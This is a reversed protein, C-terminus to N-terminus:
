DNPSNNLIYDKVKRKSCEQLCPISSCFCSIGDIYFIARNREEERIQSERSQLLNRIFDKILEANDDSNVRVQVCPFEKDFEKEWEEDEAEQDPQCHQCTLRDVRGNKIHCDCRCGEIHIIPIEPSVLEMADGAMWYIPGDIQENSEIPQDKLHPCGVEHFWDTPHFRCTYRRKGILDVIKKCKSCFGEIDNFKEIDGGCCETTIEVCRPCTAGETGVVGHPCKWFSNENHEKACGFCENVRSFPMGHKCQGNYKPEKPTGSHEEIQDNM